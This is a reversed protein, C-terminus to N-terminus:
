EPFLAAERTAVATVTREATGPVAGDKREAAVEASPM